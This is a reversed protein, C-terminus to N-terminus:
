RVETLKTGLIDLFHNSTTGMRKRNRARIIVRNKDRYRQQIQKRDRKSNMKPRPADPEPGIEYVPAERGKVGVQRAYSEIRFFQSGYKSRTYILTADVKKRPVDLAEAIEAAKMPGDRLLLATIADRMPSEYVRM